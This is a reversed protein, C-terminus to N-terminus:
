KVDITADISGTVQVPNLSVRYYGEKRVPVVIRNRESAKLFTLFVGDKVGQRGLGVYRQVINWPGHMTMWISGREVTVRYDITITQGAKARFYVETDELSYRDYDLVVRRPTLIPPNITYGGRTGDWYDFGFRPQVVCLSFMAVFILFVGIGGIRM